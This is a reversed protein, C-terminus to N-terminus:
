RADQKVPALTTVLAELAERHYITAHTLDKRDAFTWDLGPRKAKRITDVLSRLAADMEGGENALALYIKRESRDFQKLDAAANHVLAGKDWWLSPSIAIATDFLEPAKLFSEIIFLGALSEGLALDEGSVRYLSAIFPMAERAIFARFAVAEGHTPFETRYEPDAAPSTLERERDRTEVGVIIAERFMGTLAGYQALGAIHPFDQDLGGDLLWIVPYRGEGLSYSPPLYINLTRDEGLAKSYLRRSEGIIIQSPEAPQPAVEEMPQPGRPSLACGCLALAIVILIRM